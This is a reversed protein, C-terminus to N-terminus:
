LQLPPTTSCLYPNVRKSNRLIGNLRYPDLTLLSCVAYVRLLSQLQTLGADAGPGAGLFVARFFEKVEQMSPIVTYTCAQLRKM